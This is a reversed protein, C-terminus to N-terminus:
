GEFESAIVVRVLHDDILKQNQGAAALLRVLVNKRIYEVGVEYCIGNLSICGAKDV